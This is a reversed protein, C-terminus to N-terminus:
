GADALYAGLQDMTGSWGQVMSGSNEEFAKGSPVDAFSFTSLLTM